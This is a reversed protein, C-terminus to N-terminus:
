TEETGSPGSPLEQLIRVETIDPATQPPSYLSTFGKWNYAFLNV